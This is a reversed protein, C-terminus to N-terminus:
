CLKLHHFLSCTREDCVIVRGSILLKEDEIYSELSVCGLGRLSRSVQWLRTSMKFLCNLNFNRTEVLLIVKSRKVLVSKMRM